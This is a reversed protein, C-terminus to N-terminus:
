SHLVATTATGAAESSDVWVFTAPRPKRSLWQWGPSTSVQRPRKTCRKLQADSGEHWRNRSGAHGNVEAAM